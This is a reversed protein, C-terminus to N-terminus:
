NLKLEMLNFILQNLLHIITLEDMFLITKKSIIIKEILLSKKESLRKIGKVKIEADISVTDNIQQRLM